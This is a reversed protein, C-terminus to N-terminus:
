FKANGIQGQSAAIFAPASELTALLADDPDVTLRALEAAQGATLSPMALLENVREESAMKKRLVPFRKLLAMMEPNTVGRVELPKGRIDVEEKLIDPPAIDLISVPM